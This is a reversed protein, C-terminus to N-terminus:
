LTLQTFAGPIHMARYISVPKIQKAVAKNVFNDKVKEM